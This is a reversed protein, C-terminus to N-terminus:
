EIVRDARAPLAPQLKLGLAKATKLNIVLEFITPQEIPLDGPKAGKLIKDVYAAAGDYLAPNSPGYCVLAGAEVYAQSGTMSPLRNKLALTVLGMAVADGPSTMVIPITSTARKLAMPGANAGSVLVDPKLAVLEAALAPLNELKDQAYRWEIALNRGEVYGLERMGRVFDGFSDGGLSAPRSGQALIGIRWVKGPQQALAAIPAAGLAALALLTKRRNIKGEWTARCGPRSTVSAM